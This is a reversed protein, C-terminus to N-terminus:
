IKVKDSINRLEDAAEQLLESIQDLDKLTGAQLAINVNLDNNSASTEKVSKSMSDVAEVFQVTSEYHTSANDASAKIAEVVLSVSDIIEAIGEKVDNIRSAGDEVEVVGINMKQVAFSISSQIEKIQAKIEGASQNSANSLKRIEDAVVAFGKGQQGARNAEIAANLALLNTQSAIQTITNTIEGIKESSSELKSISSAISKVTENVTNIVIEAEEVTKERSKAVEIARMSDGVAKQTQETVTRGDSIIRQTDFLTNEFVADAKKSSIKNASERNQKVLMILRQKLNSIENTTDRFQEVMRQQGDLVSNVQKGLGGIEGSSKVDARVTLDGKEVRALLAALANIPHAIKKSLILAIIMGIVISFLTIGVFIWFITNKIKESTKIDDNFYNNFSDRLKSISDSYAKYMETMSKYGNTINAKQMITTRKYIEQAIVDYSTHLSVLKDINEKDQGNKGLDSLIQVISASNEKFKASTDEFTSASYLVNSNNQDTLTILENIKEYAQLESLSRKISFVRDFGQTPQSNELVNLTGSSATSIKQKLDEIKKSLDEESIANGTGQVQSLVEALLNKIEVFSSDIVQSDSNILGVRRNLDVIDNISRTLMTEVSLALAIKLDKQNNQIDGYIGQYSKSFESIPKKDFAKIDEAMTKIYTDNYKNNLDTLGKVIKKDDLSINAEILKKAIDDIKIGIEEFEKNGGDNMSNVCETLIQQRKASLDNLEQVKDQNAKNIQFNDLSAIVKTYGFFSIASSLLSVAIVISFAGIVTSKVNKM